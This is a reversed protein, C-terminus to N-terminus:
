EEYKLTRHIERNTERKKITERRDFKKKGRVIGIEVKIKKGKNYVRIPVITLGQTNTVDGLKVIEKKTLLLKRARMPDYDSPTNAPQYPPISSQMLYAEGGRVIVYSGDLAASHTRLSKVEMGLLEIGASLTELIEYDYRTKKNDALSM